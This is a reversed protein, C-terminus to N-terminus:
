RCRGEVLEDARKTALTLVERGWADVDVATLLM